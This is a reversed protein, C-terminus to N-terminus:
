EKYTIPKFVTSLYIDPFWKILVEALIIHLIKHVKARFVSNKNFVSYQINVESPSDKLSIRSQVMTGYPSEFEFRFELLLSREEKRLTIETLSEYYVSEFYQKITFKDEKTIMGDNEMANSRM